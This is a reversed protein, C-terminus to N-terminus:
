LSNASNGIKSNNYSLNHPPEAMKARLKYSAIVFSVITKVIKKNETSVIQTFDSMSIADIGSDSIAKLLKLRENHYAPFELVFHVMSDTSLSSRCTPRVHPPDFVYLKENFTPTLLTLSICSKM